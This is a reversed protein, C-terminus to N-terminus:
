PDGAPGFNVFNVSYTNIPWLQQWIEKRQSLFHALYGNLFFTAGWFLPGFNM